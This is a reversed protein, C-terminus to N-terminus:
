SGVGGMSDNRTRAAGRSKKLKSAGATPTGNPTKRADEPKKKLSKRGMGRKGTSAGRSPPLVWKKRLTL